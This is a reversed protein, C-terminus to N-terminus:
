RFGGAETGIQILPRATPASVLFVLLGILILAAALAWRLWSVRPAANPDSM